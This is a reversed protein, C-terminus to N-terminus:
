KKFKPKHEQKMKYCGYFMSLKNKCKSMDWNSLNRDFNECKYFMMFANEVNSVNWQTVDPNMDSYEEGLGFSACNFLNSMNTVKSVDIFNLDADHGENDLTDKVLKYINDNTAHVIGTKTKSKSLLYENINIM